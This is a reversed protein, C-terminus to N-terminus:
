GNRDMRYVRGEDVQRFGIANLLEIGPQNNAPVQIEVLSYFQEQIYRLVQFMLYKGLGLRRASPRVEIDIVGAAPQHWRWAFPDMDWMRAQALPQGTAVEQLQFHLMELPAYICEDFWRQSIPRPMVRVEYKRKLKIFRADLIIVPGDMQRQFVKITEQLRYGNSQFFFDAGVDSLLLGPLESGGYLGWYFPNLPRLGGAQIALAGKEKLYAECRHLLERGIGLRQYKPHVVILSIVGRRYDLKKGTEDAGFGAHAYGVVQGNEEALHLGQRDFYPKSFVHVELAQTSQLFAASRSTLGANWLRLIQPPDPNRFTRFVLALDVEGLSHRLM